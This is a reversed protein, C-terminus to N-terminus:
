QNVKRTRFKDHPYSARAWQMAEKAQDHPLAMPKNDALQYGTWFTKVWKGGDHVQVIYLDEPTM